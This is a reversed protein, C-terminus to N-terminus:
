HRLPNGVNDRYTGLLIRIIDVILGIGFFNCTFLAVFGRGFRGVYFYHAGLFGLFVCLLLATLKKKDSTSTVYNAMICLGGLIINETKIKHAIPVCKLM